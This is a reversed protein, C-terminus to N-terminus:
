LRIPSLPSLSLSSFSTLSYLSTPSPYALSLPHPLSLTPHSLHHTHPTSFKKIVTRRPQCRNKFYSFLLQKFRILPISLLVSPYFPYKIEAIPIPICYLLIKLKLKLFFMCPKTEKQNIKM